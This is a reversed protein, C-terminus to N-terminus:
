ECARKEAASAMQCLAIGAGRTGRSDLRTPPIKSFRSLAAYKGQNGSRFVALFVQPKFPAIDSIGGVIGGFAHKYQEV